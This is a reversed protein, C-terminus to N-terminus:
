CLVILCEQEDIQHLNTSIFGLELKLQAQGLEAGAQKWSMLKNRMFRVLTIYKLWLITNYSFHIHQNNNTLFM